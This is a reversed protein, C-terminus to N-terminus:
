RCLVGKGKVKGRRIRETRREQEGFRGSRRQPGGLRRTLSYGGEKEPTFRGHRSTSWDCGNLLSNLILPATGESGRYAQLSELGDSDQEATVLPRKVCAALLKVTV